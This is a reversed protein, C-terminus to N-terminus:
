GTVCTETASALNIWFAGGYTWTVDNIMEYYEEITLTSYPMRPIGIEKPLAATFTKKSFADMYYDLYKQYIKSTIPNKAGRAGSAEMLLEYGDLSLMEIYAKRMYLNDNLSPLYKGKALENLSDLGLTGGVLTSM